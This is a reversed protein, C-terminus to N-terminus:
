LSPTAQLTAFAARGFAGLLADNQPTHIRSCLVDRHHRELANNRSLGPNGSAEVALEVANIANQTVLYKIAPAEHLPINGHAGADLLIRNNLLLADIRGLTQQFSSLSSLPAGLNAPKRGAAWHAFWDRASSAVADYISSLLVNMWLTTLPDM